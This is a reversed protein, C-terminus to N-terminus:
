KLRWNSQTNCLLVGKKPPPPPIQSVKRVSVVMTANTPKESSPKFIIVQDCHTFAKSNLGSNLQKSINANSQRVCRMHHNYLISKSNCTLTKIYSQTLRTDQDEREKFFPSSFGLLSKLFVLVFSSTSLTKVSNIPSSSCILTLKKYHYLFKKSGHLSITCLIRFFTIPYLLM